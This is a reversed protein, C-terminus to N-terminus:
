SFRFRTQSRYPNGPQLVVPPFSPQNPSDPFHQTELCFASRYIDPYGGKLINAGEMFNGTYLQMGPEDSSVELVIGTKDGKARAALTHQSGAKNLVYNHDFGMGFRIQDAPDNIHQGIKKPQRFDFPTGAVPDMSGTPILHEDIPTYRDANIYLEHDLITGTGQGNLNFYAHNTVNLITNRDSNAEFLISLARGSLSYTVRIDVAGPYGEEGDVSHYYLRISQDTVEEIEWVQHHFGNDGGHLANPGNNIALSFVQNDLSFTGRAIRNAFRGIVAGHYIESSKLYADLSDFGVVVDVLNGSADPVNLSVIRCGYNTIWAEMGSGDKLGILQVEKGKFSKRFAERNM